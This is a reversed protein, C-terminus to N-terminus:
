LVEAQFFGRPSSRRVDAPPGAAEQGETSGVMGGASPKLVRSPLVGRGGETLLIHFCM